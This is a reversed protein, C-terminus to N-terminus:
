FRLRKRGARPGGFDATDLSTYAFAEEEREAAWTGGIGDGATHPLRRAETQNTRGYCALKPLFVFFFDCFGGFTAGLFLGSCNLIVEVVVLVVLVVDTDLTCSPVRGALAMVVM